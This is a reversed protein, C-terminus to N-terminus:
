VYPTTPLTLHTYSVPLVVAAVLAAYVALRPWFKLRAMAFWVLPAGILINGGVGWGARARPLGSLLNHTCVDRQSYQCFFTSHYLRM